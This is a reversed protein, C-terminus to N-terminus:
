IQMTPGTFPAATRSKIGDPCFPKLQEELAAKVIELKEINAEIKGTDAGAARAEKLNDEMCKEVVCIGDYDQQMTELQRLLQYSMM